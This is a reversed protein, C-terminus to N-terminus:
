AKEILGKPHQGLIHLWESILHLSEMGSFNCQTIDWDLPLTGSQLCAAGLLVWEMQGRTPSWKYGPRTQDTTLESQSPAGDEPSWTGPLLWWFPCLFCPSHVFLLSSHTFLLSTFSDPKWAWFARTKTLAPAGAVGKTIQKCLQNKFSLLNNNM